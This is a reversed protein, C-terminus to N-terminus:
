TSAPTSIVILQDSWLPTSLVRRLARESQHLDGILIGEQIQPALVALHMVQTLRARTLGLQKAADAYDALDGADILRNVLHALALM